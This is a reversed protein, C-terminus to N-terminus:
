RSKIWRDRVVRFSDFSSYKEIGYTKKYIQNMVDFVVRDPLGTEQKTEYFKEIFGEALELQFDTVHRM